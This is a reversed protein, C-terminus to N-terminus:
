KHRTIFMADGFSYFRYGRSVAERYAALIRERGFLASVLLLLTSRPLHFNTVMGKIPVKFRHGPSIFLDSWGKGPLVEGGNTASELAKVTTTGVCILSARDVGEQILRTNEDDIRYYEPFTLPQRDNRIPLFTSPGIHLTVYAIKVGKDTIKELLENTFHLGATPAAISGAEAAYVTQYREADDLKKKIYFPLPVTGHKEMVKEAPEDFRVGFRGGNKETVRGMVDGIEIMTGARLKKGRILCTADAGNSDLLLMEVRGGTVKKGVLRVNLVRSDNLVLVDGEDLYDVIGAFTDHVLGSNLVLLRSSDRKLAPSQAILERPLPYDFDSLEM